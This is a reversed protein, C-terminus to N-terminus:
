LGNAIHALAVEQDPLIAVTEPGDKVANQANTGIDCELVIGPLLDIGNVIDAVAALDAAHLKNRSAITEIDARSRHPNALTVLILEDRFHGFPAHLGVMPKDDVALIVGELVKDPMGLHPRPHIVKLFQAPGDNHNGLKAAGVRDPSIVVALFQAELIDDAVLEILGDVRRCTAARM